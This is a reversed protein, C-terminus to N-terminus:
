DERDDIVGQKQLLEGIKLLCLRAKADLMADIYFHHDDKIVSSSLTWQYYRDFTERFGDDEIRDMFDAYLQKRKEITKHFESD